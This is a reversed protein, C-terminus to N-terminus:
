FDATAIIPLSAVHVKKTKASSNEEENEKDNDRGSGGTVLRINVNIMPSNSKINCFCDVLGEYDEESELDLSPKLLVSPIYYKIHYDAFSINNPQLVGDIKPLFQAKLTDWPKDTVLTFSAGKPEQWSVLKKLETASLIALTYHLNMTMVPEDQICMLLHM